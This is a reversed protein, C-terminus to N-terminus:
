CDVCITLGISNELSKVPFLVDWLILDMKFNLRCKRSTKFEFDPKETHFQMRADIINEESFPSALFDWLLIMVFRENKFSQVWM